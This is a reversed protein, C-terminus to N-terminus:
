WTECDIGHDEYWTLWKRSLRERVDNLASALEDGELTGFACLRDALFKIADDNTRAIIRAKEYADELRENVRAALESNRHLLATADDASRYLLPHESAFGLQTEMALALTTAKALDSQESGGSGATVYGLVEEEAARGALWIVLTTMFKGHDPPGAMQDESALSGDWPADISFSSITGFSLNLRVIAHGAEHVAMAYRLRPEQYLKETLLLQELDGYALARREQRAKQRAQRVVKAIDAGSKGRALAALRRLPERALPEADTLTESASPDTM